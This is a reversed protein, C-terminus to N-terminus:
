RLLSVPMWFKDERSILVVGLAVLNMEGIGHIGEKPWTTADSSSGGVRGLPRRVEMPLDILRDM